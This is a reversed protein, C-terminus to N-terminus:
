VGLRKKLFFASLKMRIQVPIFSSLPALIRDMRNPICVLKNINKLSYLAVQEPLMTMSKPSVGQKDHFPTKTTGPLLTQFVINTDENEKAIALSFNYLYSKTATYVANKPIPSIINISAVTVIFGNNKKKMKDLLNYTLRTPTWVNVGIIDRYKSSPSELFDGKIGFGANSIFASINYKDLEDLLEELASDKSLDSYIPIVNTKYKDSIKLSVNENKEKENSVIITNCGLKSFEELYCLGIGSSAGTILVFEEAKNFSSNVWSEINM